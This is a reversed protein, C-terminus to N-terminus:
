RVVNGGRLKALNNCNFITPALVLGTLIAAVDEGGGKEWSLKNSNGSLMQDDWKEIAKLVQVAFHRQYTGASAGPPGDRFLRGSHCRGGAKGAGHLVQQDRGRQEQGGVGSKDQM